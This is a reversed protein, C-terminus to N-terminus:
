SQEEKKFSIFGVYGGEELGHLLMGQRVQRTHNLHMRRGDIVLRGSKVLQALDVNFEDAAFRNLNKALRSTVRRLPIEEGESRREAKLSALYATYISRLLQDPQFQRRFIRAEEAVLREVLPHVDMGLVFEEGDRSLLRATFERDDVELRIFGQRFTYRPHRSLKDPEIGALRIAEPFARGFNKVGDAALAVSDLRIEELIGAIPDQSSRLKQVYDAHRRQVLLVNAPNQGSLHTSLDEWFHRISEAQALQARISEEQRQAWGVKELVRGLQDKLKPPTEM